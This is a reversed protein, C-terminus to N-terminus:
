IAYIKNVEEIIRELFYEQYAAMKLSKIKQRLRLLDETRLKELQKLRSESLTKESLHNVLISDNYCFIKLQEFRCSLKDAIVLGEPDLDGNYFMRTSQNDLQELVAFATQNLQGATCIFSRDPYAMILATFVSPNEVIVVTSDISSIVKDKLNLGTITLPEQREYFDFWLKKAGSKAYLGYTLISSNIDNSVIGNSQLLERKELVNKPLSMNSKYSLYYLLANLLMSGEDLAHPDKTVKAALVERIYFGDNMFDVLINLQKMLKIFKKKSSDYCKKFWVYHFAEKDLGDLLFDSINSHLASQEEFFIRKTENKQNLIYKDSYIKEDFYAELVRHLCVGEYKTENFAKQLDLLKVKLLEDHSFDQKMLLSLFAKEEFSPDLIQVSGGIRGLSSYKKKMEIMLRKSPKLKLYDACQKNKDM